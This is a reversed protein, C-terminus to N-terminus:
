CFPRRLIVRAGAGLATKANAVKGAVRWKRRSRCLGQPRAASCPSIKRARPRFTLPSFQRRLLIKPARTRPPVGGLVLSRYPHLPILARRSHYPNQISPTFIPRPKLNKSFFFGNIHRALFHNTHFDTWVLGQLDKGM